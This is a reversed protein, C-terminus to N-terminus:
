IIDKVSLFINGTQAAFGIKRNLLTPLDIRGDLVYMLDEGDMLVIKPTSNSRKSIANETFGNIALFLGLTNDLKDTIKVHFDNLYKPQIKKAHWKAEFLYKTSEFTFAGDIEEGELKFSSKADIDYYDFIKKMFSELLKGRKQHNKESVLLIYENKLVELNKVIEKKVAISTIFKDKSLKQREIKDVIDQYPKFLNNLAVVSMKANESKQKGDELKALHSFDKIEIVDLILKLIHKQYKDENAIMFDILLNVYVRKPQNWDFKLVISSDNLSNILFSKLGDKYFYIISLAEKLANIIAPSLIKKNM